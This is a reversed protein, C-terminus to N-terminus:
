ARYKFRGSDGTNIAAKLATSFEDDSVLDEALSTASATTVLALLVMRNSWAPQLHMFITSMVLLVTQRLFMKSDLLDELLDRVWDTRLVSKAGFLATGVDWVYESVHIIDIIIGDFQEEMGYEKVYSLVKNELGIGGDIPVVFRSLPNVM